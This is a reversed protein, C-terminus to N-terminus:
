GSGPRPEAAFRRLFEPPVQETLWVGNDSVEFRYGAAHMRAADVELVVPSGHRAGVRRATVPDPSLHVAHRSGKHLGDVLIAPVRGQATGHLLRDPPVVSQLGLDVPVSHGQNARIRDHTADITFRHKDNTAVVSELRERTVVVGNRELASMLEPVRVWGAEDLSIGVSGPDHRLVYSLRKSLRVDDM